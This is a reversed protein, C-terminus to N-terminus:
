ILDVLPIVDIVMGSSQGPNWCMSYGVGKGSKGGM